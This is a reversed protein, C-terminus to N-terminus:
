RNAAAARLVDIYAATCVDKNLERCVYERGRRGMADARARDDHLARISTIFADLDDAESCLGCDVARVIRVLESNSDFSALLPRGSAMIGWTKSPVSSGGVGPKSIVLDADAFSFVHAIDEEPQFPLMIVNDLKEDAIRQAIAEKAAGEGILVFTVDPMATKLEKAARLLLDMNQSHGINGSYSIYYRSRDLQYRDFLVNEERPIPHVHETNIWNPVIVIKEEPVGKAMINQKFDESIVIIRDANRYTCDEIKRGVKWMISNEKSLGATALSDPFIDQLSYIFSCKLKKALKGALLGQTPPTSVAFVADIDQYRRGIQYERLNCWLYRCARVLPNKGEQPAFFRKVHVRGHYLEETKIGKYKECVEESVNRTPTPCIVEIEHGAAVLGEILDKELHSFAITEPMFYANVFLIRM